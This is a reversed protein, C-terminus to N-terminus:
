KPGDAPPVVAPAATENSPGASDIASLLSNLDDNTWNVSLKLTAGAVSSKVKNAQPGLNKWQAAMALLALESKVFSELEKADKEQQMILHLEANVGGVLAATAVIAKPGAALKGATATVLGASNRENMRGVAWMPSKGAMGVWASFEPNSSIKPGSGLAATVFAESSGVVVTDARGFGFWFSRDGDKVYYITRGASLKGTITGGGSGVVGRVCPAFAAENIDGGSIVMLVGPTAAVAPAAKADKKAAVPPTGYALHAQTIKEPDINCAKRLQEWEAALKPNKLLLQSAARQVLPASATAPVDVSVVVDVFAPIAGLGVMEANAGTPKSSKCGAALAAGCLLLAAAQIKRSRIGDRPM